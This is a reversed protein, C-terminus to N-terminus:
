RKRSGARIPASSRGRRVPRRHRWAREARSFAFPGNLQRTVAM